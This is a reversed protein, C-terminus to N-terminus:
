PRRTTVPLYASSWPRCPPSKCATKPRRRWTAWIPWTTSSPCPCTQELLVEDFAELAQDGLATRDVLFLIRKFREAKLLRYILGIITRTKGTGTAMALLCNSQGQALASEVASIAKVQYDRLGLYAHGEAALAEQAKAIDRQLMDLLGEPSHFNQLPKALNLQPAPRPVM